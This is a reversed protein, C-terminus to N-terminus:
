EDPQAAKGGLMVVLRVCTGGGQAPVVEVRDVLQEMLFWGWGRAPANGSMAAEIDPAEKPPLFGKGQDNIAVSLKDAALNFTVSVQLQEKMKNGHEMANLIAESLATSLDEVQAAPMGMDKGIAAVAAMAVKEYGRRSPLTLEIIEEQVAPLDM